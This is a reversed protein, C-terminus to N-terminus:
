YFVLYCRNLQRWFLSILALSAASFRYNCFSELKFQIGAWKDRWINFVNEIICRWKTGRGFNHLSALRKQLPNIIWFPLLVAGKKEWRAECVLQASRRLRTVCPCLLQPPVDEHSTRGWGQCRNELLCCRPRRVMFCGTLQPWTLEM